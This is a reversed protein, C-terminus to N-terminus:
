TGPHFDAGSGRLRCRWFVSNRNVPVSEAAVMRRQRPMATSASSVSPFQGALTSVALVRTTKEIEHQLACGGAFGDLVGVGARGRDMRKEDEYKNGLWCTRSPGAHLCSQWTDMLVRVRGPAPKKTESGKTKWGGRRTAKWWSGGARGSGASAWRGWPPHTRTHDRGPRHWGKGQHASADSVTPGRKEQRWLVEGM